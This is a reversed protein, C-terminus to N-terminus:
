GDFLLPRGVAAIREVAARAHRRGGNLAVGLHGPFLGDYDIRALRDLTELQASWECDDTAQLIVRGGFLMADGSFMDAGGPRHLLFAVHGASHGPTDIVEIELSGVQIRGGPPLVDVPCGRLSFGSGYIGARQGATLGTADADALRVARAVPGSAVVTLGLMERLAAAGAAHDPHGHTLLLTSITTPDVGCSEVERVIQVASMGAGADVVAAEGCGDVLYVNCDLEHTIGLGLRGGAILAVHDTLRVAM